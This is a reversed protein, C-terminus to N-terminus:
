RILKLLVLPVHMVLLLCMTGVLIQPQELLGMISLTLGQILSDDVSKLCYVNLELYFSPKNELVIPTSLHGRM